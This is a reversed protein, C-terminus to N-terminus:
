FYWPLNLSDWDMSSIAALEGVLLGWGSARAAWGAAAGYCMIGVSLQDDAYVERECFVVGEESKHNSINSLVM